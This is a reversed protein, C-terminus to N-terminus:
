SNGEAVRGLIRRRETNRDGWEQGVNDSEVNAFPRGKPRIGEVVRANMKVGESSGLSNARSALQQAKAELAERVPTSLMALRTTERTLIVKSM